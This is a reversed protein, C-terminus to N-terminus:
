KKWLKLSPTVLKANGDLQRASRLGGTRTFISAIERVDDGKQHQRLSTVTGHARNL